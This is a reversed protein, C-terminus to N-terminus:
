CRPLYGSMLVPQGRRWTRVMGAKRALAPPSPVWLQVGCLAQTGSASIRGSVRWDKKATTVLRKQTQGSVSRSQRCGPRDFGRAEKGEESAPSLSGQASQGMKERRRGGLGPFFAGLRPQEQRLSGHPGTFFAGQGAGLLALM